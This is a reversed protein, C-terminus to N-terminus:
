MNKKSLYIIKKGTLDIEIFRDGMAECLRKSNQSYLQWSGYAPSVQPRRESPLLKLETEPMEPHVTTIIWTYQNKLKRRWIEISSGPFIQAHESPDQCLNDYDCLITLWNASELAKRKVEASYHDAGPGLAPDLSPASIFVRAANMEREVCVSDLGFLGGHQTDAAGNSPFKLQTVSGSRITYEGALGLNNTIISVKRNNLVIALFLFFCHSGDALFLYADDPIMNKNKAIFLSIAQKDEVLTRLSKGFITDGPYVLRPFMALEKLIQEQQSKTIIKLDVLNDGLLSIKGKSQDEVQQHLGKVVGFINSYKHKIVLDGFRPTRILNIM